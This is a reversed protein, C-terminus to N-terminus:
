SVSADSGEKEMAAMAEGVIRDMFAGKGQKFGMTYGIACMVIGYIIVLLETM